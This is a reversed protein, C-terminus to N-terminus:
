NGAGSTGLIDWLQQRTGGTSGGFVCLLSYAAWGALGILMTAGTVSGDRQIHHPRKGLRTTKHAHTRARTHNRILISMHIKVANGTDIHTYSKNTHFPRTVETTYLTVIIYIHTNTQNNATTNSTERNNNSCM